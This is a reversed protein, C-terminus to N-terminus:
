LAKVQGLWADLVQQAETGLACARVVRADETSGQAIYVDLREDPMEDSFKSAWEICSVGDAEVYEYFGVDELESAHELRYVDFHYLPLRGSTYVCLLNFTPSTIAEAVGLGLALGQTFQTKGAGLNGNLAIVFGPQVCSALRAALHKTEEASTCQAVEVYRAM